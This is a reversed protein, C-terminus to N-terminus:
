HEVDRHYEWDITRQLIVRIPVVSATSEHSITRHILFAVVMMAFSELLCQSKDNLVPLMPPVLLLISYWDMDVM